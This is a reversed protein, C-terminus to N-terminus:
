KATARPTVGPRSASQHKGPLTSPAGPVAVAKRRPFGHSYGDSNGGPVAVAKRRPFGHSYGSRGATGTKASKHGLDGRAIEIAADIEGQSTVCVPCGPGSLLRLRPDVARRIGFGSIAMTHTGCVEMLNITKRTECLETVLSNVRSLLARELRGEDFPKPKEGKM